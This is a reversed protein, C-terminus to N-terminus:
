MLMIIWITSREEAAESNRAGDIEKYTDDYTGGIIGIKREVRVTWRKMEHNREEGAAPRERLHLSRRGASVTM